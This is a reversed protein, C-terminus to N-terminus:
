CSVDKGEKFLSITCKIFEEIRTDALAKTKSFRICGKGVNLGDLLVGNPAIKKTDGCYLSVYGKQANLHFLVTDKLRFCLMKYNITEEIADCHQVIMSRLELLKDKRWDPELQALYEQPDSVDYQM